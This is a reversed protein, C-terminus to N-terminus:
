QIESKPIKDVVNYRSRALAEFESAQEDTKVVFLHIRGGPFAIARRAYAHDDTPTNQVERIMGAVM